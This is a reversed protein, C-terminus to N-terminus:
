AIGAFIFFSLLNKAHTSMVRFVQSETIEIVVCVCAALRSESAERPFDASVSRFGFGLPSLLNVQNWASDSHELPQTSPGRLSADIKSM